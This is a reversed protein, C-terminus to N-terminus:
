KGFVVAYRGLMNSRQNEILIKDADEVSVIVDCKNACRERLGVMKIILPNNGARTNGMGMAQWREAGEAYEVIGQSIAYDKDVNHVGYIARGNTDYIVPCFTRILESGRADIVIGTYGGGIQAQPAPTYSQVAVPNPAPVPVPTAIGDNALKQTIAAEAVSGVGYAPVAMTVTYAGDFDMGESVIRAGTIMGSVKTKVIDSTLLFNEMTSESDVATGKIEGILNRQADMIAARRAMMKARPLPMGAPLSGMGMAQIEQSAAAQVVGMISLDKQLQMPLVATGLSLVAALVSIGIFKKM